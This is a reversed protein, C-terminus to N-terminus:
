DVFVFENSELLVQAYKEWGSLPLVPKAAPGAFEAAADWVSGADDGAVAEAAPTKTVTVKWGFSDFDNRGAPGCDVVFDITDGAKMKVATVRTEVDRAHVSWTAITGEASSILRGRVGDGQSTGHSLTGGVAVTCDRPAVWRRVTAHAADNGAHGGAATLMAWGTKPDPLAAGGQWASGTFHPLPTFTKLRGSGEDYQGYGYQWVSPKAVLAEAPQGEEARVFKVGLEVEDAKPERGLVARYMRAVRRGADAEGAIAPRAALKKAQDIVFPSNMMFLAQQPVSTEARQAQHGDPSAFDFTRFVGPLNQRDIYAYVTRRNSFPQGVIDVSRGGMKLDLQGSAALLSDRMAEFDLRQPNIRWLLRNEPDVAAAKASAGGWSAQRYVASLMMRRHLKKVSWGDDEAFRKALWDLLEPHTPREGRTGFDSPTRVLGAGFHQQWVRNVMVRATLPNDKSAIARALELRGSGEGFPKRDEGSLVALFRRPVEEGPSGANGRKFIRPTVATPADEMAMARPPSGPHTAILGDIGRQLARKHQVDAVNFIKDVEATAVSTPSGEGRLILRLAEAAPEAFAEERDHRALVAGYREALEKMSGPAGAGVVDRLVIPNVGASASARVMAPGAGTAFDKSPIEALTRWVAFVPDNAKAGDKLRAAWRQVLWRIPAKGDDITEFEVKAEAAIGKQAALLYRAVQEASRFEKVMEALRNKVWADRATTQKELEKEFAERDPTKEDVGLLPLEKPEVSSAFVGYLSYYDATPIPDYKHDHCRACSVTLGMTGRTVVDIRDDIIDQQNNIFRRGLTLFGLAALPRKDAKLELRDAAIQQVLFQDYPLDENFARVVWDRYTYSFAYRREEEFVYGKTDAYRAVDLWHRGWREGYRPSALLRDILKEYADPSADSVFAEVEDATAPLGTLDFTARRILTRKDAEPSPALGKEALKALVFRDIENKGWAGLVGAAEPVKQEVPRRFSWFGRGEDVTMAVPHGAAAGAPAAAIGPANKPYPAGMKVWAELVGIKEASLKGDPPMQAGDEGYRVANILGSLDPKGAVVGAVGSKGGKAMGEWTDLRLGGKTKGASASHCKYCQEVLVPRVKAEFFEVGAADPAAEAGPATACLHLLGIIGLTLASRGKMGVKTYLDNHGTNDRIAGNRAGSISADERM